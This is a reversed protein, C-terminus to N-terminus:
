LRWGCNESVSDHDRPLLTLAEALPARADAHSGLWVLADGKRALLLARVEGTATQLGREMNPQM